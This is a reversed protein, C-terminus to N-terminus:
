QTTRKILITLLVCLVYLNNLRQTINIPAVDLNEYFKNLEKLVVIKEDISLLVKDANWNKFRKAEKIKGILEKDIHQKPAIKNLNFDETIATVISTNELKEIIASRNVGKNNRHELRRLNNRLERIILRKYSNRSKSHQSLFKYLDFGSGFLENLISM